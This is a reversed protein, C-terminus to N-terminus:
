MLFLQGQQKDYKEQNHYCYKNIIKLAFPILKEFDIYVVEGTEFIPYEGAKECSAHFLKTLAGDSTTTDGDFNAGLIEEWESLGISSWWEEQVEMEYESLADQNIISYNQLNTIIEMIEPNLSAPESIVICYTGMGGPCSRVGKWDNEKTLELFVNHNCHEVTSGSYDSGTCYPVEFVKMQGPAITPPDSIPDMNYYTNHLDAYILDDNRFKEKNIYYSEM